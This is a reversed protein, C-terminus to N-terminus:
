KKRSSKGRMKLRHEVGEIIGDHLRQDLRLDVDPNMAPVGDIRKQILRELTDIYIGAGHDRLLVNFDEFAISLCALYAAVEQSRPPSETPDM